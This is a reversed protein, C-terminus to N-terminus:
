RTIEENAKRLAERNDAAQKKRDLDRQKEREIEEEVQKKILEGELIEEQIRKIHQMKFDHLQNKIVKANDMKKKYEGELKTRMKDDYEAMQKKGLEEWQNNIQKEVMQKRQKLQAQAEREQIVDCMMM